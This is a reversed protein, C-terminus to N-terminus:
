PLSFNTALSWLALYAALGGGVFVFYAERHARMPWAFREMLRPLLAVACAPVLAWGVAVWSGRGAVGRDIFWVLQWTLLAVLLWGSIIHLWHALPRGAFGEHARCIVYFGAFALPWALWGADDFPHRGPPMLLSAAFIVLAPLLWLAPLRALSLA